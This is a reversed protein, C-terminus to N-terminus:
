DAPSTRVLTVEFTGAECTYITSKSDNGGCIRVALDGGLAVNPVSLLVGSPLVSKLNGGIMNALEGMADAVDDDSISALKFLRRALREATPIGCRVLVAGRWDGVFGVTATYSNNGPQEATSPASSASFMVNLVDNVIQDLELQHATVQLTKMM